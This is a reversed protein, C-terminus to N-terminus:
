KGTYPKGFVAAAIRASQEAQPRSLFLELSAMVVAKETVPRGGEREVVQALQDAVAAPFNFNKLRREAMIRSTYGVSSLSM